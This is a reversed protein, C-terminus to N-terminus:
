VSGVPDDRASAGPVEVFPRVGIADLAL